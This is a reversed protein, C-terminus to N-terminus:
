RQDKIVYTDHVIYARQLYRAMNSQSHGIGIAQFFPVGGCEASFSPHRRYASLSPALPHMMFAATVTM